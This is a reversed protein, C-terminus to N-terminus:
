PSTRWPPPRESWKPSKALGISHSFTAPEYDLDKRLRGVAPSGSVSTNAEASSDRCDFFPLPAPLDGGRGIRRCRLTGHSDAPRGRNPAPGPETGGEALPWESTLSPPLHSEPRPHAQTGRRRRGAALGFDPFPHTDWRTSGAPSPAGPQPKRRLMGRPVSRAAM